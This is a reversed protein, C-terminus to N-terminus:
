AGLSATRRPFPEAELFYIFGSATADRRRPRPTGYLSFCSVVWCLLRARRDPPLLRSCGGRFCLSECAHLQRENLLLALGAAPQCAATAVATWIRNHMRRSNRWSARLRLRFPATDLRRPFIKLAQKFCCLLRICLRHLWNGTLRQLGRTTRLKHKTRLLELCLELM